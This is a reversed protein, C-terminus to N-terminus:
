DSPEDGPWFRRRADPDRDIAARVGSASGLIAAIIATLRGIDEPSVSLGTPLVIVRRAVAETQPLHRAADPFLRSYPMMRHCGPYFYRRALVNDHRLACILEDRGLGAEAEDMEVVVYQCNHEGYAPPRRLTLGPCNALGRLYADHNARNRAFIDNRAALSTLGMAASAESMKANTGLHSVRDEGTFGFNIMQRLKDALAADSTAIVGGEIAHICKTAHFSFVEADSLPPGGAERACGFAHASDLVLKLGHEDAVRRLAAEGAYDGWLAVGLIGTTRPTIAARVREPDLNHTVPDIDCFVPRIGQRWLAHVTAVFTFSPVIVEGELGLASVALELGLTANCVAIGQRHGSIDAVAQEFEVSMPGLNTLRVSDLMAEIRSLFAGREPMNPRGVLLPPDFAPPAGLVGIAPRELPPASVRLARGDAERRAARDREPRSSNDVAQDDRVNLM